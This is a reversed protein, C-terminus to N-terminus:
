KGAVPELGKKTLVLPAAPSTIDLRDFLGPM